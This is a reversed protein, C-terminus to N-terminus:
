KPLYNALYTDNSIGRGLRGALGVSEGLWDMWGIWWDALDVLWGIDSWAMLWGPWWNLRDVLKVM